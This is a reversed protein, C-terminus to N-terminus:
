KEAEREAHLAAAEDVYNEGKTYLPLEKVHTYIVEGTGNGGFDDHYSRYLYEFNNLEDPTVYGRYILRKGEQYIRDHLDAVQSRKVIAIEEVLASHEQEYHAVMESNASTVMKKYWDARRRSNAKVADKIAKVIGAIAASLGAGVTLILGLDDLWHEWNISILTAWM